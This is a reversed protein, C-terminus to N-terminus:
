RFLSMHSKVSRVYNKTDDYMGHKSVSYQGQYYSAIATDLNKSTRVLARIIAVGATANDQPDLLNLKRGVLDSAWEGSSPIVQMAGIANAPSVARQNFGSEQYSFALALAPDVGLQRATDAIIAKMQERTPAPLSNLTQKNVNAQAVVKEPYTYNLFTSPVLNTPAPNSTKTVKATGGLSIKQGPRIIDTARIGNASLITGLSVGHRAAIASLTDGPVVTYTRAGSPKPQSTKKVPTSAPKTSGPNSTKGSITIKQGPYIISSMNLRNASLVSGLSVGHRAAIASLTDGSRVVYSSGSSTKPATHKGTVPAPKHSSSQTSGSLKIKQGPFILSHSKLGNIQLLKGTNLGHRAAIASITDGSRVTYTSPTKALPLGGPIAAPVQAAAILGAGGTAPLQAPLTNPLRLQIPSTPAATAPEALVVSSLIVAPIAASTVAAHIRRSAPANKRVQAAAPTSPM